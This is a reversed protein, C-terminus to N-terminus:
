LRSTTHMRERQVGEVVRRRPGKAHSARERVVRTASPTGRVRAVVVTVEMTHHHAETDRWEDDFRM